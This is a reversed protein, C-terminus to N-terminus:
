MRTVARPTVTELLNVDDDSM